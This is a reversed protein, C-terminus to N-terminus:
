AFLSHSKVRGAGATEVTVYGKRDVLWYIMAKSSHNNREEPKGTIKDRLWPGGGPLPSRGSGCESILGKCSHNVLLSPKQSMADIKLATRLRDIGGMEEIRAYRLTLGAKAQWIEVDSPMEEKESFPVKVKQTGAIDIVGGKVNRWWPRQNQCHLIVEETTLGRCYLEDVAYVIGGWEQIALVSYAGQKFRGGPDIALEVPLTSEFPYDGVHITGRFERIVMRAPAVPEGGYREQFVEDPFLEEARLIEPDQRGLPYRSLNSWSPMMFTKAGQKNPLQYERIIEPYFGLSGELTGSALIWGRVASVRSRCRQIAEFDVQAAECICIGNPSETGIHHLDKLSITKVVVTGGMLKVLCQGQKPASLDDRTLILHLKYADEVFYDFEKRANAYDSGGFWWIGGESLCRSIVEKATCWSKGAQEGGSVWKERLAEDFLDAFHMAEQEPSPVYGLKKFIIKRQELTAKLKFGWHLSVNAPLAIFRFLIEM